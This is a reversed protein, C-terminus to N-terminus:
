DNCLRETEHFLVELQTHRVRRRCLLAYTATRPRRGYLFTCYGKVPWIPGTLM